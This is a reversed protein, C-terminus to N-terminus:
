DEESDQFDRFFKENKRDASVNEFPQYKDPVNLKPLDEKKKEDTM